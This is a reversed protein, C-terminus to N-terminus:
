RGTVVTARGREFYHLCMNQMCQPVCTNQIKFTKKCFQFQNSEVWNLKIRNQNLENSISTFHIWNFLNLEISSSWSLSTEISNSNLKFRIWEIVISNWQGLSFNSCNFQDLEIDAWILKYKIFQISGIWVGSSQTQIGNLQIWVWNLKFQHLEISWIWIWNPKTLIPYIWNSWGEVLIFLNIGFRIRNFQVIWNLLDFENTENSSWQCFSINRWNIWNM